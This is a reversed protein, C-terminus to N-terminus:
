HNFRDSLSQPDLSVRGLVEQQQGARGLSIGDLDVELAAANNTALTTGPMEPVQYSDGAKLDRNLLIQGDRGKVTVRADARARLVVRSGRNMVGYVQGSGPAPVAPVATPKAVPMATPSATNMPAAQTAPTRAGAAPSPTAVPQQGTAANITGTASPVTDTAPSPTAAQPPLVVPVAKPAAAKPLNLVPAPPVTQNTDSVSFLMHWVGWGLLLLVFGAIIRWGQPLRRGEEQHIPAPERSQDDARGSIDQKFREVYQASDLGLHRAYSRIFGIAYTKGPLDELRDNELAELHDKRIKLARSVAAIEDGRRLRAARLDQGVTELPSESDGSIERLHIRRRSAGDKDGGSDNELTMQTLKIM